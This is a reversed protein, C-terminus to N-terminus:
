ASTNETSVIINVTTAQNTSVSNATTIEFDFTWDGAADLAVGSNIDPNAITLNSKQRV